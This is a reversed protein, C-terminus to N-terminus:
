RCRTRVDIEGYAVAPEASLNPETLSVGEVFSQWDLTSLFKMSMIINGVTVQAAAQRHHESQVIQDISQGELKVEREVWEVLRSRYRGIPCKGLLTPEAM